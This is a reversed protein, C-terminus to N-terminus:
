LLGAEGATEMECYVQFPGAAGFQIMYVGSQTSPNMTKWEKCARPHVTKDEQLNLIYFVKYVKM